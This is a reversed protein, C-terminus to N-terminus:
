LNIIKFKRKLEEDSDKYRNADLRLSIGFVKELEIIKEALFKLKFIKALEFESLELNLKLKITTVDGLEPKLGYFDTAGSTHGAIRKGNEFLNLEFIDDDFYGVSLWIGALVKSYKKAIDKV